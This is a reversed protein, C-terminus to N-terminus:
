KLGLSLKITELDGMWQARSASLAGMDVAGAAQQKCLLRNARLAAQASRWGSAASLIDDCAATSTVGKADAWSKVSPPVPSTPYGATKYAAAEREALEYESQRNGIVAQILTDTDTDIQKILEAKKASLNTAVAAVEQEVVTHTINNEDVYEQFLSVIEWRQEYKNLVSLAPATERVSQTIPDYTPQPTPFVWEYGDAKFLAPYSTQPNADRISRETHPYSLDFLKIYAM